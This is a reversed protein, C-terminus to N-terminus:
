GRSVVERAILVLSALRPAPSPSWVVSAGPSVIERCTPCLQPFVAFDSVASVTEMCTPWFQPAVNNCGLSNGYM